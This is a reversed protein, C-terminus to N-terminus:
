KIGNEKNRLSTYEEIRDAIELYGAGRALDSARMNDVSINLDPNSKLLLNVVEKHGKLSAWMIPSMGDNDVVNLYIGHTSLLIEIIEVHGAISALLLPNLGSDELTTNVDIRRKSPSLFLDVLGVRGYYSAWRLVSGEDSNGLVVDIKKNKLRKITDNEEVVVTSRSVKNLGSDDDYGLAARCGMSNSGLVSMPVCLSLLFIFYFLRM